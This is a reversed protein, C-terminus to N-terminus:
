GAWGTGMKDGPDAVPDFLAQPVADGLGVCSRGGWGALGMALCGRGPDEVSATGALRVPSRRM